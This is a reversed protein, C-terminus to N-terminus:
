EASGMLNGYAGANISDDWPGRVTPGWAWPDIHVVPSVIDATIIIPNGGLILM